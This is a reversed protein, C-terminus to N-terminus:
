CPDDDNDPRSGRIVRRMADEIMATTQKTVRNVLVEEVIGSLKEPLTVHCYSYHEGFHFAVEVDPIDFLDRGASDEVTLKVKESSASSGRRWNRRGFM